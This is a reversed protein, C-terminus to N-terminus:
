PAKPLRICFRAGCDEGSEYWIEGGSADVLMRAIALGLGSGGVGSAAAGRAFPDFLHPILEKEVGPGNDSVSVVVDDGATKGELVIESGGYRFANTVLNSLVQDLRNPDTLAVANEDVRLEVSADDPVPTSALVQKTLPAVSVPEPTIQIGGQQLKSLDLLNSVLVSLRQGARTVADFAANVKEESMHHRSRSLLETLGLMSTLPTRLEHAANAIFQERFSEQQKRETVDQATGIMKTPRGADDVLVKTHAQITVVDSNPRVIRYEHSYSRPDRLADRVAAKVKDRDEPHVYEFVSEYTPRFENPSLGFIRYLEDSWTVEDGAVDWEWSGTKAIRQAEVLQARSERERQLLETRELALETLLALAQLMDTEERGFFPTFPSAEVALWGSRLPVSLTSEGSCPRRYVTGDGNGSVCEAIEQAEEFELGYSGIVQGGGRLLVAGRGGVLQCLHPLLVTAVQSPTEAEMLGLEAERFKVEEPRRWARRVLPPPAFGLLFLCGSALAFLGVIIEVATADGATGALVLTIALGLSGVSLTRMRRRCVTPQGRAGHWFRFGVLGCLVVWQFLILYVYLQFLHSRAEGGEPISPLLLAGLVVAGTLVGASVYIWRIPRVFSTMFRYLFYPFFALLAIEVKRAWIVTASQSHEPLLEAAVVVVALLGFTAALWAAAKGRRRWWEWVAVLGLGAFLLLQVFELGQNLGALAKHRCRREV